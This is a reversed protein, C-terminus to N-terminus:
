DNHILDPLPILKIPDFSLSLNERILDRENNIKKIAIENKDRANMENSENKKVHAKEGQRSAYRKDRTNILQLIDCFEFCRFRPIRDM